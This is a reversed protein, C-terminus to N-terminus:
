SGKANRGSDIQHGDNPSPLLSRLCSSGGSTSAGEVVWGLISSQRQPSDRISDEGERADYEEPEPDRQRRQGDHLQEESGGVDRAEERELEGVTLM